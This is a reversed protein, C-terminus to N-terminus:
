SNSVQLNKVLAEFDISNLDNGDDVGTRYNDMSIIVCGLVSAVKEALSGNLSADITLWLDFSIIIPTLCQLPTGRKAPDM